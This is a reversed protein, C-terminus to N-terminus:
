REDISISDPRRWPGGEVRPPRFPRSWSSASALFHTAVPPRLRDNKLRLQGKLSGDLIGGPADRTHRDSVVFKSMSSM